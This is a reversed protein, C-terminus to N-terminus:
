LQSMVQAVRKTTSSRINLLEWCWIRLNWIDYKWSYKGGKFLKGGEITEAAVIWNILYFFHWLASVIHLIEVNLFSYNGRFSYVSIRYEFEFLAKGWQTSHSRGHDNKKTANKLAVFQCRYGCSLKFIHMERVGRSCSPYEIRADHFCHPWLWLSYTLPANQLELPHHMLNAVPRFQRKVVM